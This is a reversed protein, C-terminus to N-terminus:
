TRVAVLIFIEGKQYTTGHQRTSVSQRKLSVAAEKVLTLLLLFMSPNHNIYSFNPCPLVRIMSATLEESVDLL